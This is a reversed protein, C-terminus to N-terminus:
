TGLERKLLRENIDTTTCDQEVMSEKQTFFPRLPDTELVLRLGDPDTRKMEDILAFDDPSHQYFTAAAKILAELDDPISALWASCDKGDADHYVIVGEMDSLGSAIPDGCGGHYTAHACTDCSTIPMQATQNIPVAEVADPHRELIETWTAPPDTWTKVPAGDPYHILRWRSATAPQLAVMIEPKHMKIIPTWRQLALKEGSLKITGRETLALNVGDSIAEKIIASASM